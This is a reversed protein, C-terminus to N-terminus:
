EPLNLTVYVEAGVAKFKESMEAMGAAAAADMGDM